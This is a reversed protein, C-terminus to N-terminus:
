LEFDKALKINKRKNNESLRLSMCSTGTIEVPVRYVKDNTPCYVLFVDVQGHYSQRKGTFGNMSSTNFTFVDGKSRATKIQATIFKGDEEFVVDYRQNNGFPILVVRGSKILRAIVVAESIEGKTKSNMFVPLPLLFQVKM